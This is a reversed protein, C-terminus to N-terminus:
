GSGGHKYSKCETNMRTLRTKTQKAETLYVSCVEDDETDATTTLSTYQSKKNALIVPIICGVLIMGVYQSLQTLYSDGALRLNFFGLHTLHKHQKFTLVM